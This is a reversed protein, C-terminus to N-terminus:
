ALYFAWTQDAVYGAMYVDLSYDTSLYDGYYSRIHRNEISWLQGANGSNCPATNVGASGNNVLCRGIAAQFLYYGSGIYTLGWVQETAWGTYTYVGNWDAVLQYGTANSVIRSYSPTLARGTESPESVSQQAPDGARGPLAAAAPAAGALAALVLGVVASLWIRRGRKM